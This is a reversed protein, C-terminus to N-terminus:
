VATPIAPEAYLGRLMSSDYTLESRRLFTDNYVFNRASNYLWQRTLINFKHDQCLMNKRKRM